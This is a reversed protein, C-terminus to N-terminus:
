ESPPRRQSRGQKLRFAQRVWTRFTEAVSGSYRLPGYRVHRIAELAVVMLIAGLLWGPVPGLSCTTSEDM